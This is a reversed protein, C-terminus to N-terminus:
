SDQFNSQGNTFGPIVYKIRKVRLIKKIVYKQLM